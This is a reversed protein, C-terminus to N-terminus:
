NLPGRGEEMVANVDNLDTPKISGRADLTRIPQWISSVSRTPSAMKREIWDRALAVHGVNEGLKGRTM